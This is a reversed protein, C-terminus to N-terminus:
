RPWVTKKDPAALTQKNLMEPGMCTVDAGTDIKFKVNHEDVQVNVRWPEGSESGVAGLFAEDEIEANIEGQNAGKPAQSKCLFFYHGYRDRTHCKAKLAPCQDVSAQRSERVEWM